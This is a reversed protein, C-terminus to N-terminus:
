DDKVGAPGVDILIDGNDVKVAFSKLCATKPNIGRGSCADFEWGHTSCTLLHRQLSGQSLRTGLHPCSDAYAHIGGDVNVLLVGQGETELFMMEGDWLEDLTAVRRYAM